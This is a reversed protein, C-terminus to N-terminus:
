QCKALWMEYLSYLVQVALSIGMLVGGVIVTYAFVPKYKTFRWSGIDTLIAFYPIVVMFAKVHRHMRGLSLIAGTFM